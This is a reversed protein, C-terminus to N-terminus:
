GDPSRTVDSPGTTADHPLLGALLTEITARAHRTSEGAGLEDRLRVLEGVFALRDEGMQAVARATVAEHRAQEAPKSDGEALAEVTHVLRELIRYLV